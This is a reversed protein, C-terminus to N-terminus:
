GYKYQVGFGARPYNWEIANKSCAIKCTGCELCGDLEIALVGEKDLIYVHAPCVYLCYKERCDRCVEAKIKIHKESDAKITDNGLKAKVNVEM